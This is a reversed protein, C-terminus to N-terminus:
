VWSRFLAYWFDVGEFYSGAATFAALLFLQFFAVTLLLLSGYRKQGSKSRFVRVAFYVSFPTSLYM